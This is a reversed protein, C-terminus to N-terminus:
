DLVAMALCKELIRAKPEEQGSKIAAELKENSAKV